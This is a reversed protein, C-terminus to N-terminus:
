APGKMMQAEQAPEPGELHGGYMCWRLYAKNIDQGTRWLDLREMRESFRIVEYEDVPILGLVKSFSPTDV